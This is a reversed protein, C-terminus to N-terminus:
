FFGSQYPNLVYFVSLVKKFLFYFYTRPFFAGIMVRDRVSVTVKEPAIQLIKKKEQYWFFSTMLIVNNGPFM